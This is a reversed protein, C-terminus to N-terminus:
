LQMKSGTAEFIAQRDTKRKQIIGQVSVAGLFTCYKVWSADKRWGWPSPHLSEGGRM